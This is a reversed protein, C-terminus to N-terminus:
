LSFRVRSGFRQVLLDRAPRPMASVTLRRLRVLHPSSALANAGAAGLDCGSLDLERLSAVFPSAALAEAGQDGIPNGTLDLTRLNPAESGALLRVGGPRIATWALCLRHLRALLPTNALAVCLADGQRSQSLDLVELRSLHPSRALAVVDAQNVNLRVERLRGAGPENLFPDLMTVGEGGLIALRELRTLHPSRLLARLAPVTTTTRDLTLDALQARQALGALLELTEPELRNACLVLTALRPFATSVLLPRAERLEMEQGSLDLATLRGLHPSRGLARAAPLDLRNGSPGTDGLDLGELQALGPCRALEAGVETADFFAVERVPAQRFLKEHHAIFEVANLQVWEVFGRRFGWGVVGLMRLSGTWTREYKRLLEQARDELAGLWEDENAARVYAIQTRILEAREPEGNEEAYVLRPGDEDPNASIDTLFAEHNM